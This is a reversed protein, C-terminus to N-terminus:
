REFLRVSSGQYLTRAFERFGHREALRVSAANGEEILCASRYGDGFRRAGWSLAAGLAEHAYGRRQMATAVVWGLEPAGDFSPTVDRKFDAFGLEGVFRGSSRERMVWFGFGLTSWHGAYRLVRSWSAERSSPRGGIFRTVEPDAWMAAVDEFDARAHPRLVLRETEIVRPLPPALALAMRPAPGFRTDADGDRVFGVRTYFELAHPNTIVTIRAFGCASAARALDGVLRRGVGGRTAGPDVFLDDLEIEDGREEGLSAFGVLSADVLAVRTRGERAGDGSFVLADPSALLADRYAADHLSSRRYVGALAPVDDVTADRLRLASSSMAASGVRLGRM